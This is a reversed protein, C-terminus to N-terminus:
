SYKYGYLSVQGFVSRMPKDVHEIWNLFAKKVDLETNCNPLVHTAEHLFNRELSFTELRHGCQFHFM